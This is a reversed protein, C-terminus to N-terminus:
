RVSSYVDRYIDRCDEEIPRVVMLIGAGVKAAREGDIICVAYAISRARLASGTKRSMPRHGAGHRHYQGQRARESHEGFSVGGRLRKREVFRIPVKDRM